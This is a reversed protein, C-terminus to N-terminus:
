RSDHQAAEKKLLEIKRNLYWAAKELDQIEKSQDKRGARVCYKVVNFLHPGLAWDELADIVEIKGFTYHAPRNVDDHQPVFVIEGASM